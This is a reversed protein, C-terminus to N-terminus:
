QCTRICGDHPVLGSHSFHPLLLEELVAAGERHTARPSFSGAAMAVVRNLVCLESCLRCLSPGCRVQNLSKDMAMLQQAVEVRKQPPPFFADVIDDRVCVCARVCM